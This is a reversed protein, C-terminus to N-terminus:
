KASKVIEREDFFSREGNREIYMEHGKGLLMVVDGEKALSLAYLIATKRDIVMNVENKSGVTGFLVDSAISRFLM